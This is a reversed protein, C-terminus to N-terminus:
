QISYLVLLRKIYVLPFFVGLLIVAACSRISHRAQADVYDRWLGSQMCLCLISMSSPVLWVADFM